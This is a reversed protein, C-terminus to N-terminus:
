VILLVSLELFEIWQGNNKYLVDQASHILSHMKHDYTGMNRTLARLDCHCLFLTGVVKRTELPTSM